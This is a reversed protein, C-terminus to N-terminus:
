AYGEALETLRREDDLEYRDPFSGRKVYVKAAARAVDMGGLYSGSEQYRSGETRVNVMLMLGSRTRRTKDDRLRKCAYLHVDQWSGVYTGQRYNLDYPQPDPPVELRVFEVGAALRKLASEKLSDHEDAVAAENDAVQKLVRKLTGFLPSPATKCFGVMVAFMQPDKEMREALTRDDSFSEIGMSFVETVSGGYDKGVYADFWKDKFAREKAEYGKNGSLERLSYTQASERRHELFGNAAALAVPDAELHHALEHFLVRKNFFQGLNIISSSHGHIGEASARKSRSARITVAPLRGGILRYFEAMDELVKDKPYRMRKLAAAAGPEIKQAKAWAKAQDPTVSSAELISERVARGAAALEAIAADREARKADEAPEHEARLKAELEAHATNFANRLERGQELTLEGSAVRDYTKYAAERLPELSKMAERVRRSYDAVLTGLEDALRQYEARAEAVRGLAAQVDEKGASRMAEFKARRVDPLKMAERAVNLQSAMESEPAPSGDGTTRHAWQLYEVVPALYAADTAQQEVSGGKREALYAKITQLSPGVASLDISEISVTRRGLLTDTLARAKASLMVRRRVNGLSADINLRTDRLERTLRLREATTLM